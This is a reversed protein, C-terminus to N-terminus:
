EKYSCCCYPFVQHQPWQVRAKQRYFREEADQLGKLEAQVREVQRQCDLNCDCRLSAIQLEELEAWKKPVRDSIDGFAESSM